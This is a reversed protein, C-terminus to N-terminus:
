QPTHTHAHTILGRKSRHLISNVVLQVGLVVGVDGGAGGGGEAGCRDPVAVHATTTVFIPVSPMNFQNRFHVNFYDLYHILNQSPSMTMSYLCYFLAMM